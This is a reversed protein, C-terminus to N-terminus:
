KEQDEVSFNAEITEQDCDTWKLRAQRPVITDVLDILKLSEKSIEIKKKTQWKGGSVYSDIDADDFMVADLESVDFSTQFAVNQKFQDVTSPHFFDSQELLKNGKFICILRM